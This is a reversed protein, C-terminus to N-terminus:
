ALRVRLIQKLPPLIELRLATAWTQRDLRPQGQLLAQLLIHQCSTADLKSSNFDLRHGQPKSMARLHRFARDRADAPQSGVLAAVLDRANAETMISGNYSYFGM